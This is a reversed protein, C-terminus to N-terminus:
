SKKNKMINKKKKESELAEQKGTRVKTLQFAIIKLNNLSIQELRFAIQHNLTSKLMKEGIGRKKMKLEKLTDRFTLAYSAYYTEIPAYSDFESSM